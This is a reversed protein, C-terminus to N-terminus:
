RWRVRYTQAPAFYRAFEAEIESATVAPSARRPMQALDSAAPMDRGAQDSRVLLSLPDPSIWRGELADIADFIGRRTIAVTKEDTKEFGELATIVDPTRVFIEAPFANFVLDFEEDITFADGQAANMHNIIEEMAVSVATVYAIEEENVLPDSDLLASFLAEARHPQSDMYSYLHEMARFYRQADESWIKLARMVRERQQRTARASAPPYIALEHSDGADSFQITIGTDAFFRQLQAADVSASREARRLTGRTKEYAVRETEPAIAAFRASWADRGDLIEARAAEVRALVSKPEGGDTVIETVLTISAHSSREEPEIWLTHKIPQRLGCAASLLLATALLARNM